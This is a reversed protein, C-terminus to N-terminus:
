LRRKKNLKVTTTKKGALLMGRWLGANEQSDSGIKDTVISKPNKSLQGSVWCLWKEGKDKWDTHVLHEYTVNVLISAFYCISCILIIVPLSVLSRNMIAQNASYMSTLMVWELAIIKYSRVPTIHYQQNQCIDRTCIDLRGQFIQHWCDSGHGEHQEKEEILFSVKIREM